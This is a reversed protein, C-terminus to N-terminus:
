KTELMSRITPNEANKGMALQLPTSSFSPLNTTDPNILNNWGKSLISSACGDLSIHTVHKVDTPLGIEMGMETDELEDKYVFSQSFNKFNKFLKQFRPIALLSPPSKLNEGTLSEEDEEYEEGDEDKERTPTSGTDMKSRKAHQLGVAISSESICGATFPLLVFREIRERM